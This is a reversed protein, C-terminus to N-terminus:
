LNRIRNYWKDLGNDAKIMEDYEESSGEGFFIAKESSNIAKKIIPVDEVVDVSRSLLNKIRQLM